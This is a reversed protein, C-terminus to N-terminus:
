PTAEMRAAAGIRAERHFSMEWAHRFDGVLRERDTAHLELRSAIELATAAEGDDAIGNDRMRALRVWDLRDAPSMLPLRRRLDEVLIDVAEDASRVRWPTNFTEPMEVDVRPPHPDPEEEYGEYGDYARPRAMRMALGTAVDPELLSVLHEVKHRRTRLFAPAAMFVRPDSWTGGTLSSGVVYHPEECRVVLCDGGDAMNELAFSRSRAATEETNDMAIDSMSRLVSALPRIEYRHALKHPEDAHLADLFGLVPLLGVNEYPFPGFDGWHSSDHWRRENSNYGFCVIDSGDQLWRVSVPLKEFDISGVEVTTSCMAYVHRYEGGVRGVIDSIFPITILM